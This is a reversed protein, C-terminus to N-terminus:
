VQTEEMEFFNNSFNLVLCHNVASLHKRICILVSAFVFILSLKYGKKHCYTLDRSFLYM